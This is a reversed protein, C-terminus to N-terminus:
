MSPEGEAKDLQRSVILDEGKVSIRYKGHGASELLGDHKAAKLLAGAIHAHHFGCLRFCRSIKEVRLVPMPPSAGYKQHFAIACLRESTNRLWLARVFERLMEDTKM